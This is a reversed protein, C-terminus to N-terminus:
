GFPLGKMSFARGIKVFWQAQANKLLGQEGQKKIPCGFPCGLKPPSVSGGVLIPQHVSGRYNLCVKRKPVAGSQGGVLEFFSGKCPFEELVGRVDPEM